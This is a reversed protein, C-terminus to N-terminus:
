LQVCSILTQLAQFKRHISCQLSCDLLAEKMSQCKLFTREMMHLLGKQLSINLIGWLQPLCHQNGNGKPGMLAHVENENVTLDVGKLIEKGEVEVHLNKIELTKM